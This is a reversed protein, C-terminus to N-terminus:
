NNNEKIYKLDDIFENLQRIESELVLMRTYEKNDLEVLMNQKTHYPKVMNEKRQLREQYQTIFKEIM